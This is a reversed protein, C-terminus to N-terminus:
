LSFIKVASLTSLFRYNISNKIVKIKKNPDSKLFQIKSKSKLKKKLFNILEILKIPKSSKCEIIEFFSSKKINVIKEIIKSVDNIHVFNDYKISPNWIKIKENKTLKKYTTKLFNDNCNKGIIAPLRLIVLKDFFNKNFNKILKNESNIKSKIYLKKKKNKQEFNIDITSFFILNRINKKKCLKVINDVMVQNYNKKVIPMNKFDNIKHHAACHIFWDVSYEEFEKTFKKTLDKKFFIYRTNRFKNKGKSIAILKKKKKLFYNVLNSGSFGNAGTICYDIKEM